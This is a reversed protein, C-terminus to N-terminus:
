CLKNIYELLEEFGGQEYFSYDAGDRNLLYPTMLFFKMGVALSPTDERVDNGVMLCEEPALNLRSAVNRFYEPNPKCFCTNEYTTIFEFDAINLGAWNARKEQAIKPFVPNTALVVRLGKGLALDVAKKALPSPFCYERLLDFGDEYYRAFIKEDARARDTGLCSSYHAWFAQENTMSGDNRIMKGIGERLVALGEDANRGADALAKRIGGFYTVEFANVHDLPLLTGDMDFLVAKTKM